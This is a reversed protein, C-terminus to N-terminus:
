GIHLNSEYIILSFQFMDLIYFITCYNKFQFFLFENNFIRFIWFYNKLNYKLLICKCIFLFFWDMKDFHIWVIFKVGLTGQSRKWWFCELVAMELVLVLHKSFFCIQVCTVMPDHLINTQFSTSFFESIEVM